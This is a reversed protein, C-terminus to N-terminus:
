AQWTNRPLEALGVASAEPCIPVSKHGVCVSIVAMKAFHAFLRLHIDDLHVKWQVLIYTFVSFNLRHLVLVAIVLICCPSHLMACLVVGLCSRRICCSEILQFM